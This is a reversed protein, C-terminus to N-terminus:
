REMVLLGDRQDIFYIADQFKRYVVTLGNLAGPNFLGILQSKSDFLAFFEQGSNLDLLLKLREAPFEDRLSMFTLVDQQLQYLMLTKILGNQLFIKSRPQEVLWSKVDVILTEVNAGNVQARVQSRGAKHQYRHQLKPSISLVAFAGSASINSYSAQQSRSAAFPSDVFDGDYLSVTMGAAQLERYLLGATLPYAPVGLHQWFSLQLDQSPYARGPKTSLGRIQLPLLEPNNAQRQIVQHALQFISGNNGLQSMNAEGSKNAYPHSGALLLYRANLRSFWSVSFEFSSREFLPHPVEILYDATNGLRIILSGWNRMDAGPRESLILSEEDQGLEVYHLLQYNYASLVDSLRNLEARSSENWGALRHQDALALVPLLIENEWYLLTGLDPKQYSESGRRALLSKNNLLWSQLYGELRRAQRLEVTAELLGVQNL